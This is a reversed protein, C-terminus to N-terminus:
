PEDSNDVTVFKSFGRIVGGGSLALLLGGDAQGAGALGRVDVRISGMRAATGGGLREDEESVKFAPARPGAAVAEGQGDPAVVTGPPAKGAPGPSQAM